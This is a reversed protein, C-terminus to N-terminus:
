NELTVTFNGKWAGSDNMRQIDVKKLMVKYPISEILAILRYMDSFSGTASFALEIAGGGKAGDSVSSVSLDVGANKGLKEIQEIFAVASTKAAFYESLKEREKETDELARLLGQIKEKSSNRENSAGYLAATEKNKSEAAFFLYGYAGLLAIDALFFVALLNKIKKNKM